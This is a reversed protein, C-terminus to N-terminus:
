PHIERKLMTLVGDLHGRSTSDLAEIGSDYAWLVAAQEDETLEVCLRRVPMTVSSYDPREFMLRQLESM